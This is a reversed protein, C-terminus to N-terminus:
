QAECPDEPLICRKEWGRGGREALREFLENNGKEGSRAAAIELCGNCDFGTFHMQENRATSKGRRAVPNKKGVNAFLQSTVHPDGILPNFFEGADRHHGDAGALGRGDRLGSPSWSIQRRSFSIVHVRGCVAQGSRSAGESAASSCKKPYFRSRLPAPHSRQSPGM